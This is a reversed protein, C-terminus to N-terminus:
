NPAGTRGRYGPSPSSQAAESTLWAAAAAIAEAGKADIDAKGSRLPCKGAAGRCRWTLCDGFHCRCAGAIARHV